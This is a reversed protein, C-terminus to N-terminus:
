ALLPLSLGLRLVASCFHSLDRASGATKGVGRLIVEGAGGAKALEERLDRARAEVLAPDRLVTLQARRLAELKTLREKSEWLNKYFQEMLVATAPDSVSWLSAVLTRAGAAQFGQQLGLVGEGGAQKGLATECASLVALDVGRLDLGAVEEATLLGKEPDSNAGALVLGSLLLPNRDYTLVDRAEAFSRVEGVRRRAPRAPPPTFFGHTALHLYHWSSGKGAALAALLAPKDAGAGALLRPARGDPFAARFARAVGEMEARTGPLRAYTSGAGYTADGLALLGASDKRPEDALELLHRGSTVYGIAVEELLYSGEKEGPLAAFPLGCLAGDPSILMTTAQGLAPRLPRWLRDALLRAAQGDPRGPPVAQLPKRWAAVAQNITEAAGLPVCVPERGPAVVFALLRRETRWAGKRQPDPDHHTYDLFDVFATRAPLTDAVQAGTPERRRRMRQFAESQRELDAEAAEKDAELRRFRELWSQQGAPSPPSNALKALGARAQRLRELADGIDPHDLTLRREATRANAAGKWGLVQGYLRVAPTDAALAMSLFHHLNIRAQAILDLRQRETLAAFTDDLHRRRIGLGRRAAPEALDLEGRAYHLMALNNLYQAYHPHKEGLAAKCLDRAQESLPLAKDYAGMDQYLMALNNLTAAYGPHKEGLVAKNLDRARELVTRARDYAGMASYLVGLNNLSQAYDPHKEGLAAKRLDRAQEYLPLAKEYAGMDQYLKALNNLSAAYQPHNEGLVEKRLDRAQEFLSLAKDYVGVDQYQVALNNLSTAYDPHKEGLAGKWSDRAQELLPLAKDYAGVAEYLAALNNLSIAYDPHKEGLVAKGLVRAQESLSLAKDFAGIDKYLLALNRLSTIYDPHKEGLATKCVDRAREFLSLAKEYVGVDQYLRALNNLGHAYHPHKEGLAARTLDCSREFLPLAKDLAGLAQYTGAVYNLCGLYDQNTDGLLEKLTAAGERAAELTEAFKGRGYLSPVEARARTLARWYRARHDPKMAALRESTDVERRADATRWDDTGHMRQRIAFVEKRAAAASPFDEGIEYMQALLRLRGVVQEGAGFVEREIAVVQRLKATGEAAKDTGFLAQAEALLRDREKLKRQQEATLPPAAPEVGAGMGESIALVVLCLGAAM